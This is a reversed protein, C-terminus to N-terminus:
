WERDVPNYTYKCQKAAYPETTINLANGAVLSCNSASNFSDFVLLTRGDVGCRWNVDVTIVIEEPFFKM